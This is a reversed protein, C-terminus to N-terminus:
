NELLKAIIIFQSILTYMSLVNHKLLNEENRFRKWLSSYPVPMYDPYKLWCTFEFFDPHFNMPYSNFDNEKIYYKVWFFQFGSIKLIKEIEYISELVKELKPFYNEKM